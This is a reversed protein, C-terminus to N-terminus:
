IIGRSIFKKNKYHKKIEISDWLIIIIETNKMYLEICIGSNSKFTDFKSEEQLIYYIDGLIHDKNFIDDQIM